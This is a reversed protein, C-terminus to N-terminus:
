RRGSMTCIAEVVDVITTPVKPLLEEDKIEAAAVRVPENRKVCRNHLRKHSM